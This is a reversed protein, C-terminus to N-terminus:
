KATQVIVANVNKGQRQVPVILHDATQGDDVIHIVNVGLVQAGPALCKERTSTCTNRMTKMVTSITRQLM